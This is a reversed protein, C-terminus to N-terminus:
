CSAACAAVACIRICACVHVCSIQRLNTHLPVMCLGCTRACVDKAVSLRCVGEAFGIACSYKQDPRIRNYSKAIKTLVDESADSCTAWAPLPPEPPSRRRGRSTRAFKALKRLRHPAEANHSSRPADDANKKENQMDWFELEIAATEAFSEIETLACLLQSKNTGTLAAAFRCTSLRSILLDLPASSLPPSGDARHRSMNVRMYACARFPLVLIHRDLPAPGCRCIGTFAIAILAFPIDICARALM